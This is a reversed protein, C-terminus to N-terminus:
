NTTEVRKFFVLWIPFRGLTPIFIFFVQFWWRSIYTQHNSPLDNGRGGSIEQTKKSWPPMVWRAWVRWAMTATTTKELRMPPRSSHFGLYPFVFSFCICGGFVLLECRFIPRGWFSFLRGVKWKQPRDTLKLSPIPSNVEWFFLLSVTSPESIRSVLQYQSYWTGYSKMYLLHHLIEEMSLLGM